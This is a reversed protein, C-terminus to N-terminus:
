CCTCGRLGSCRSCDVELQCGPHPGKSPACLTGLGVMIHYSYYLLPINDPWDERPFENLGRVEAKWRRYTLFSLANPILIPNDLRLHEMDPQGVLAQPSWIFIQALDVVAHRAMVFTLQAQRTPGGNVGAM